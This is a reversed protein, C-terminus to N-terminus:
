HTAFGFNPRVPAPDRSNAGIEDVRDFPLHLASRRLILVMFTEVSFTVHSKFNVLRGFMKTFSFRGVDMMCFHKSKRTV